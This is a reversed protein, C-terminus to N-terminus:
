GGDRQHVSGCPRSSGATDTVLIGRSSTFHTPSSTAFSAIATPTNSPVESAVGRGM